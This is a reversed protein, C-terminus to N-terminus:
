ASVEDAVDFFSDMPVDLADALRAVVDAAPTHLGHEYAIIANLSRDAAVALYERRHGREVRLATLKTGSFRTAM